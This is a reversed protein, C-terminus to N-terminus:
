GLPVNTKRILWSVDSQKRGWLTSYTAFQTLKNSQGQHYELSEKTWELPFQCPHVLVNELRAQYKVILKIISLLWCWVLSKNIIFRADCWHLVNLVADTTQLKFAMQVSIRLFHKFASCSNMGCINHLGIIIWVFMETKMHNKNWWSWLLVWEDRCWAFGFSLMFSSLLPCPIVANSLLFRSIYM